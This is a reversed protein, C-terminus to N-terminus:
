LQQELQKRQNFFKAKRKNMNKRNKIQDEEKMVEREAKKLVKRFNKLNTMDKIFDNYMMLKHYKEENKEYFQFSHQSSKDENMYRPSTGHFSNQLENQNM